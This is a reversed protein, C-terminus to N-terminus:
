FAYIYFLIKFKGYNIFKKKVYLCSQQIIGILLNILILPM